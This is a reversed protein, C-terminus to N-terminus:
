PETIARQLAYCPIAHCWLACSLMVWRGAGRGWGGAAAAAQYAQASGPTHYWSPLPKAGVVPRPGLWNGLTGDGEVM